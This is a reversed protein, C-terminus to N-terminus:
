DDSTADPMKINLERAVEGIEDWSRRDVSVTSRERAAREPDGPVLVPREAHLPRASRLYGAMGETAGSLVSDAAIALVTLNAGARARDDVKDGALLTAMAEVLIAMAYGKHGFLPGGVPLLTGRPQGYLVAPEDTAMGSADQLVGEPLRRGLNRTARVRGEPVASTAFDAAVPTSGNPIAFAIPNTALRGDIGGFPAVIHTSPPGSGFIVAVCGQGAALEAYAGLRGTHGLHRAIVLGVQHRRAKVVAQRAAYIGGVQGFGFDGDIWSVAGRTAVRRPRAAPAIEGSRIQRIYQPVRILGHSHVGLRSSEVLHDAVLTAHNAPAGSKRLLRRVLSVADDPDLTVM